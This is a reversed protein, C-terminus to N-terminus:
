VACFVLRVLPKTGLLCVFCPLPPFLIFKAEVNVDLWLSSIQEELPDFLQKSESICPLVPAPTSGCEVETVANDAHSLFLRVATAIECQVFILPCVNELPKKLFTALGEFHM